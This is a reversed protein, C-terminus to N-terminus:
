ATVTSSSPCRRLARNESRDSGPLDPVEDGPDAPHGAVFLADLWGATRLASGGTLRFLTDSDAEREPSMLSIGQQLAPTPGSAPSLGM